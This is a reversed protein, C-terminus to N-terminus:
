QRDPPPFRFTRKLRRRLAPFMRRPPLEWFGALRREAADREVLWVCGNSELVALHLAVHRTEQKKRKVPLVRETGAARAACFRAVPCSSCAPNRPLCVTAGLEMMAQNFDGPRRADLLEAALHSFRRRTSPFSIESADNSLRSLVRMVNGDVAPHALGLAISSVAAATYEGVGPLARVADYDAPVRGAAIMRAARHLSRARSYYGLGSWLALVDSEPAAALADITPLCDLFRRYYPIVAEVRTQQLM